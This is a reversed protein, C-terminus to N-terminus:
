AGRTKRVRVHVVRRRARALGTVFSLVSCALFVFCLAKAVGGSGAAIDGFGLLAALIAVLFFAFAWHLM